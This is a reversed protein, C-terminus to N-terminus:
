AHVVAQYAFGRAGTVIGVVKHGYVANSSLGAASGPYSLNVWSAPGFTGDPNRKVTVLSAYGTNGNSGAQSSDANLTYVGKKVESIGEFHTVFTTGAPGDPYSFSTWHSFQGTASDYDVMYGQGIPMDQDAMNNTAVDSYGGCITYSTGGNHWIGYATDSVSGPYVISAVFQETATNYIYDHGPGLPAGSATPGDYNGVALGGMVSHVYNYTAGPYDITQYSGGGHRLDAITGQFIMGHVTTPDTLPHGGRYSGVLAIRDGGLNDPGYISSSLAGPYDVFSTKGKGRISGVFLLGHTGSTGSILFQGKATAGRLGQWLTVPVGVQDTNYYSVKTASDAQATAGQRAPEVLAPGHPDHGTAPMASLLQRGELAEVVCPSARRSPARRARSPTRPAPSRSPKTDPLSM